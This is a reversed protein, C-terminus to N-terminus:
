CLPYIAPPGLRVMGPRGQVYTARTVPKVLPVAALIKSHAHALGRTLSPEGQTVARRRRSPRKPPASKNLCSARAVLTNGVGAQGHLHLSCTKAIISLMGPHAPSLKLHTKKVYTAILSTHPLLGPCAPHRPRTTAGRGQIHLTTPAHPPVGGRPICPPPPTHHCGEGPYAPHRPRTHTGGPCGQLTGKVLM